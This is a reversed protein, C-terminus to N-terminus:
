YCIWIQFNSICLDFYVPWLITVSTSLDFYLFRPLYYKPRLVSIIRVSAYGILNPRNYLTRYRTIGKAAFQSHYLPTHDETSWGDTIAVIVRDSREMGGTKLEQRALKMALNLSTAHQSYSKRETKLELIKQNIFYKSYNGLSLELGIGDAFLIMAIKVSRATDFSDIFDNVWSWLNQLSNDKISGSIDIIFAIELIRLKEYGGLLPNVRNCLDMRNSGLTVYRYAATSPMETTTTTKVTTELATRTTEWYTTSTSYADLTITAEMISTTVVTTGASNVSETTLETPLDCNGSGSIQGDDCCVGEAVNYTKNICCARNGYQTAFPFRLPYNGCCEDHTEFSGIWECQRLSDFASNSHANNRDFENRTVLSVLQKAFAADCECNWRACGNASNLCSVDQQSSSYMSSTTSPILFNYNVLLPICDTDDMQTCKHCQQWHQCATDFGDIPHGLPKQAHQRDSHINCWCGYNLM